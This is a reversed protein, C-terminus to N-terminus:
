SYIQFLDIEDFNMFEDADVFSSDGFDDDWNLCGLLDPEMAPSSCSVVDAPSSVASPAPCSDVPEEKSMKVGSEEGDGEPSCRSQRSSPPTAATERWVDGDDGDDYLLPPSGSRSATAPGFNIVFHQSNEDDDDDDMAAAAATQCSCTHDGFYTIVYLSPDEESQQVQKTATCGHDDKYSCRYYLRPHKSNKIEKQGYKRWLFGDESTRAKEVRAPEAAAAAGGGSATARCFIEQQTAARDRAGDCSRSSVYMYIYRRRRRTSPQATAPKRKTDASSSEADGGARLAALARDCCRLIEAALAHAGGHAPPLSAGHLLAELVAASERGQAMLESAMSSAAPSAVPAATATATAGTAILAM